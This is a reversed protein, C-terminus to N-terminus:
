KLRYREFWRKKFLTAFPDEDTEKLAKEGAEITVIGKGIDFVQVDSLPINIVVDAGKANIKDMEHRQIDLVRTLTNTLKLQESMRPLDHMTVAITKEMGYCNLLPVPLNMIVGGDILKYDLYPVSAIVIPFSCSARVALSLDVDSIVIWSPDAAVFKEPHSVFVVLKGTMIDVATIAIPLKVDSIHKINYEDFIEQLMQELLSGDVYGGELREKSFPLLKHSPMYFTKDKSLKQEISILKHEITDLPIGCAVLAAIVSGMSTGSIASLIIEDEKIKRIIPLQSFSKVGGGSLAVGVKVM